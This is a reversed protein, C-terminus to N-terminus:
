SQAQENGQFITPEPNIDNCPLMNLKVTSLNRPNPCRRIQHGPLGCLGCVKDRLRQAWLEDPIRRSSSPTQQSNQTRSPMQIQGSSFSRSQTTLRPHSSQHHERAYRGDMIEQKVAAKRSIVSFAHAPNSRQVLNFSTWAELNDREELLKDRLEVQLGALYKDIVKESTIEPTSTRWLSLLKYFQSNYEELAQLNRFRQRIERFQKLIRAESENLLFRSKLNQVFVNWSQVYTIAEQAVPLAEGRCFLAVWKIFEEESLNTFLAAKYIEMQGIFDVLRSTFADTTESTRRRGDFPEPQPMHPRFPQPTHSIHAATTHDNAVAELNRIRDQATALQTTLNLTLAEMRHVFSDMDTAPGLVQVIPVIPQSTTKPSTNM